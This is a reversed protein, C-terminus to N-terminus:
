CRKHLDRMLGIFPRISPKPIQFALYILITPQVGFCGLFLVLALPMLQSRRCTLAPRPRSLRSGHCARKCDELNHNWSMGHEPKPHKLHRAKVHDQVLGPRLDPLRRFLVNFAATLGPNSDEISRKVFSMAYVRRLVSLPNVRDDFSTNSARAM